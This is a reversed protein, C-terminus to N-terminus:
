NLDRNQDLSSCVSNVQLKKAMVLMATNGFLSHESADTRSIRITAMRKIDRQVQLYDAANSSSPMIYAAFHSYLEMSVVMNRKHARGVEVGADMAVDIIEYEVLRPDDYKVDTTHHTREPRVDNPKEEHPIVRVPKYIRKFHSYWGLSVYLNFRSPKVLQFFRHVMRTTYLFVKMKIAMAVLRRTTQFVFSGAYPEFHSTSSIMEFIKAVM